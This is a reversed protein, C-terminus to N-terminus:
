PYEAIVRPHNSLKGLTIKFVVKHKYFVVQQKDDFSKVNTVFSRYKPLLAATSKYISLLFTLKLYDEM